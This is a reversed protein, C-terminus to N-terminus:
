RKIVYGHHLYCDCNDIIHGEGLRHYFSGRRQIYCESFRSHPKFTNFLLLVRGIQGGCLRRQQPRKQQRGVHCNVINRKLESPFVRKRWEAIVDCLSLDFMTQIFLPDEIFLMKIQFRIFCCPSYYCRGGDNILIIMMADLTLLLM